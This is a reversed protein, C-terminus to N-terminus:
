ASARKRDLASRGSPPDGLLGATIGQESIRSRLEADLILRSTPIARKPDPGPQAQMFVLTPPKPKPVPKPPAKRVKAPKPQKGRGRQIWLERIKDYCSSIPHGVRHSIVKFSAGAAALQELLNCQSPLWRSKHPPMPMLAAEGDQL